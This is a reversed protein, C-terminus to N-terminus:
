FGHITDLLHLQLHHSLVMSYFLQGMMRSRRRVIDIGEEGNVQLSTKVTDIPLLIIRWLGASLSALGTRAFTPVINTPDAEELFAFILTNSATDGFRLGQLLAFPLKSLRRIGGEEWLTKLAVTTNLGYRYQFNITTRLWMLSLVQVGGALAGSQGGNFAKTSAKGIAALVDVSSVDLTSVVTMAEPLAHTSTKVNKQLLHRQFRM